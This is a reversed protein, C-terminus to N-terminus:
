KYNFATQKPVVNLVLAGVPSGGSGCSLTMTKTLLLHVLRSPTCCHGLSTLSSAPFLLSRAIGSIGRCWRRSSCSPQLLHSAARGGVSQALDDVPEARRQLIICLITLMYASIWNYRSLIM